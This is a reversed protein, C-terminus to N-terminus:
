GLRELCDVLAGSRRLSDPVADQLTSLEDSYDVENRLMRLRDLHGGIQQADASDAERFYRAVFRHVAAGGPLAVGAGDRLHNRALVFAGYYARSVATREMAERPGPSATSSARVLFDALAIYEAFDFAATM